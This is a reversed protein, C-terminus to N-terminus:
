IQRNADKDNCLRATTLGVEKLEFEKLQFEIRERLSGGSIAINDDNKWV